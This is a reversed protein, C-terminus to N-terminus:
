RTHHVRRIVVSRIGDSTKYRLMARSLQLAGYGKAGNIFVAIAALIDRVALKRSAFITGSTISFQKYCAKCKYVRRATLDYTDLCGCVPCIPQRGACRAFHREPKRM